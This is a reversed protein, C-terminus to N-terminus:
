LACLRLAEEPIRFDDIRQHHDTRNGVLVLNWKLEICAKKDWSADGFYSISLAQTSGGKIRAKTMIEVRSVADNASCVPVTGISFGASELQMQATEGWGGTAIGVAVSDNKLLSELFDSAVPVQDVPSSNLHIGINSIFLAKIKRTLM